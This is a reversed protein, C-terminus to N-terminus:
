QKVFRTSLMHEGVRFQLIYTGSHLSQVSIYNGPQKVEMLQQGVVNFIVVADIQLDTKISLKDTAPSPFISIQQALLLEKNGTTSIIDKSYRPLIQYGADCIGVNDFQGGLGVLHFTGVPAPKTALDVDNDIRLQFTNIGDTVDANFSTGNGLWQSPTVLSLNNIRVLESETSEDLKTIVKPAVLPNASSIKWLTDPAIQTLCNFQNIVGQVVLRDGETVTYGFSKSSFVTIGGSQDILTFQISAGGQIDVGYVIGEISCKVNLSDPIGSVNVTTVKSIAYAPYSPACAVSVKVEAESCGNTDCIKYTFKDEGCFGTNPKYTIDNLGNATATGKAPPVSVTLSTLTNPRIDNTLVKVVVDTNFATTAEDAVAKVTTSATATYTCVPIPNPASANNPINDLADPGSFIWNTLVFTNGDPGTGSKRYAWGDTYNWPLTTGSTFRIEGFVDIVQNNEFLEIADDGNINMAGGVTNPLFGFFSVFKVSDDCVYVCQGAKVAVAPLMTEVGSSGGGNNASGVGYASLDPIDKLAKLEIGKVGAGSPQTDYVGTIVLSKTIPRDNDLIIVTFQSSNSVLAAGNTPSKLNMVITENNEIATDNIINVSLEQTDRAVGARFSIIVPNTFNHDSGATATSAIDLEVSVSTASANGDAIAIKIKIIGTDEKVSINRGVFGIVPGSTCASKKGPNALLEVGSLVFGTPTNAPKWNSAKSNDSNFDCLVLSPGLANAEPPWPALPSFTLSDIVNKSADSLELAEGDNNLAGSYQFAPLKFAATFLAANAAVIVFSDPQLTFAPFVFTIGKSFSWGTMDVTTTGKNYLEVFEYDDNGPNNFMLETIVIDSPATLTPITIKPSTKPLAIGPTPTTSAAAILFSLMLVFIPYFRIKM